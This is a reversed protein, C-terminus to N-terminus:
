RRRPNASRKGETTLGDLVQELAARVTTTEKAIWESLLVYDESGFAAYERQRAHATARRLAVQAQELTNLLTQTPVM